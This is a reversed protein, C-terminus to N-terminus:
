SNQTAHPKIDQASFQLLPGNLEIVYRNMIDRGILVFDHDSRFLPMSRFIYGLFEIDASYFERTETFAHSATRLPYDGIPRLGLAMVITYPIFSVSAGSDILARVALSGKENSIAVQCGPAPKSGWDPYTQYPFPGAM